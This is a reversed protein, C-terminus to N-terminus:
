EPLRLSITTIGGCTFGPSIISISAGPGNLRHRHHSSYCPPATIASSVLGLRASLSLSLSLPPSPPLLAPPLSRALSLSSNFCVMLSLVHHSPAPPLSPPLSPSHTPPSEIATSACFHIKQLFSKAAPRRLSSASKQHQGTNDRYTEELGQTGTLSSIPTRCSPLPCRARSRHPDRGRGQQTHRIAPARRTSRM